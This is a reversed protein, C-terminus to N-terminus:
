RDSRVVQPRCATGCALGLQAAITRASHGEAPLRQAWGRLAAPNARCHPWNGRQQRVRSRPAPMAVIM